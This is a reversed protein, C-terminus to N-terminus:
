GPRLEKGAVEVVCFFPDDFEVLYASGDPMADHVVGRTGAPLVGDETVLPHLLVVISHEGYVGGRRSAKEKHMM